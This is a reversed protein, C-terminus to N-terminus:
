EDEKYQPHTKYLNYCIRHSNHAVYLFYSFIAMFHLDIKSVGTYVTYNLNNQHPTVKLFRIRKM